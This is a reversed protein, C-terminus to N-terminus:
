AGEREGEREREREREREIGCECGGLWCSGNDRETGHGGTERQGGAWWGGAGGDVVVCMSRLTSSRSAGGVVLAFSCSTRVRRLLANLGLQGCYACARMCDHLRTCICALMHLNIKQEEAKRSPM